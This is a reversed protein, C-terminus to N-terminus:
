SSSDKGPISDSEPRVLGRSKKPHGAGDAPAQDGAEGPAVGPARVDDVRREPAGRGSRGAQGSGSRRLRPSSSGRWHRGAIAGLAGARRDGAPVGASVTEAKRAM